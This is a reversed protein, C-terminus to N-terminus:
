SRRRRRVPPPEPQTMRDMCGISAIAFLRATPVEPSAYIYLILTNGWTKVWPMVPVSATKELMATATIGQDRAEGITTAMHGVEQCMDWLTAAHARPPLVICAFLLFAYRGQRMFLSISENM